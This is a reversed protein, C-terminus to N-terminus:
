TGCRPASSATPRKPSTACSSTAPTTPQDHVGVARESDQDRRARGRRRDAQRLRRTSHVGSCPHRATRAAEAGGAREDLGQRRRRQDERHRRRPPHGEQLGAVGRLAVHRHHRRRRRQHQHGLGYYHGEQRERLQPTPRPIWSARTRISRRSCGTSPATSSAIPSSRSSTNRSSRSSRRPSSTSASPSAMRPPWSAVASFAASWRRCPSPSRRWLSLVIPACLARLINSRFFTYDLVRYGLSYPM